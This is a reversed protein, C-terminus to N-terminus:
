VWKANFHYGNLDITLSKGEARYFDISANYPYESYLKLLGGNDLWNNVATEIDTYTEGGLTAKIGQMGCYACTGNEVKEHPCKVVKVNYVSEKKLTKTYEVYTKVDSKDDIYQFAYGEELLKGLPLQINDAVWIEDYSGGSLKINLIETSQNSGFQLEQITGAETGIILEAKEDADVGSHDLISIGRITSGTWESLDLKAKPMVLIMGGSSADKEFSGDGIIKLTSSTYEDVNNVPTVGVDIWGGSITHRNLDLTVTKDNGTVCARKQLKIDALLTITTGDEAANMATMFDASYTKIPTPQTLDKKEIRVVMQRGCDNCITKDEGTTVWSDPCPKGCVSCEGGAYGGTHSCTKGCECAYDTRYEVPGYNHTHEEITVDKTLTKVNDGGGVFKNANIDWFGYGDELLDYVKTYVESGDVSVRASSTDGEEGRFTGKTLKETLKADGSLVLGGNLNLDGNFELEGGNVEVAPKRTGDSRLGCEANLNDEFILKGGSIIIAPSALESMPVNKIIADGTVRLTGGEVTLTPNGEGNLTHENMRLEVTKGPYNFEVEEEIETVGEVPSYLQVYEAGNGDVVAELADTVSKYLAGDSDEAVPAFGCETCEGPIEAMEDFIHDEPTGTTYGCIGCGTIHKRGDSTPIAQETHPTPTTGIRNGCACLEYHGEEGGSVYGDIGDTGCDYAEGEFGCKACKKKHQADGSSEYTANSHKCWALTLTDGEIATGSLKDKNDNYAVSEGDITYEMYRCSYGSGNVLVVGATIRRSASTIELTGSCVFLYSGSSVNDAQIAASDSDTNDIIIKGSKDSAGYVYLYSGNQFTLPGNITLTANKGLYLYVSREQACQVTLSPLVVNTSDPIMYLNPAALATTNNDVIECNRTYGSQSPEIDGTNENVMGWSTVTGEVLPAVQGNFWGFLEEFCDAGTIQAQQEATLAEYADYAAQVAMYTAQVEDEDMASLTDAEPLADIMNQVSAVAEGTASEAGAEETEDGAEAEGETKGSEAGVEAEGDKGTEVGAEVTEVTSTGNVVVQEEALATTPLSTLCLMLTMFLSLVRKKM